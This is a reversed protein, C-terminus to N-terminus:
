RTLSENIAGFSWYRRAKREDIRATEFFDSTRGKSDHRTAGKSSSSALAAAVEDPLFSPRYSSQSDVQSGRQVRRRRHPPAGAAARRPEVKPPLPAREAPRPPLPAREAPDHMVNPRHPISETRSSTM